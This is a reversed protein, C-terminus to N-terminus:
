PGPSGTVRACIAVNRARANRDPSPLEDGEARVAEVDSVGITLDDVLVVVCSTAPLSAGHDPVHWTLTRHGDAAAAAPTGPADPRPLRTVHEAAQSTRAAGNEDTATVTATGETGGPVGTVAGDLRDRADQAVVGTPPVAQGPSRSSM